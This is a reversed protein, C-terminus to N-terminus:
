DVVRTLADPLVAPTGHEELRGDDPGACTTAPDLTELDDLWGPEPAGTAPLVVRVLADGDALSASVVAPSGDVDGVFTARVPGGAGCAAYTLDWGPLRRALRPLSRATVSSQAAPARRRNVGAELRPATVRLGLGVLAPDAAAAEVAGGDTDGDPWGAAADEVDDAEDEGIPSSQLPPPVFGTGRADLCTDAVPAPARWGTDLHHPVVVQLAATASGADPAVVLQALADDPGVLAVQVTTGCTSSTPRWGAGAALDLEARAADEVGSAYTTSRRGVVRTVQGDSGLAPGAVTASTPAVWPDTWVAVAADLDSRDSVVQPGSSCGALAPAALLTM